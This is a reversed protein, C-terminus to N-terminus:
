AEFLGLQLNRPKAPQRDNVAFAAAADRVLARADSSSQPITTLAMAGQEVLRHNAEPSFNGAWVAVPAWRYKLNGIAGAWTGGSGESTSIVITLESLAYILRNRYMANGVDFPTDPHVVSIMTLQGADIPKRNPRRLRERLLHDPLIGIVRGGVELAGNMGIQDTGRAGGSVVAYDGLVVNAGFDNAIGTLHESIDRSGVIGIAASDVNDRSGDGYVLPPAAFGFTRNWREPYGREGTTAIWIGRDELERVTREVRDRRSLLQEVRLPLSADITTLAAITEGSREQLAAPGLGNRALWAAMRSWTRISLPMIMGTEGSTLGLPTTLAIIAFRDDASLDTM